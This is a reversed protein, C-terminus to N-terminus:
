RDLSDNAMLQEYDYRRFLRALRRRTTRRKHRHRIERDPLIVGSAHSIHDMMAMMEPVPILSSHYGLAKLDYHMTEGASYGGRGVFSLRFHRLLETNYIACYDRACPERRLQRARDDGFCNRRVWLRMRKTDTADKLIQGFRGRRELKGSGASAVKPSSEIVQVMRELWDHRKVITDSHQILFYRGRARQLGIDLATNMAHIWNGPTQEGREVLTIWSLSRLWDLSEDKSGNDVVIVEFAPGRTYLRLSRLCFKVLQLVQYHPICITVVPITDGGPPVCSKLHDHEMSQNM